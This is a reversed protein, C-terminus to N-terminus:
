RAGGGGIEEWRDNLRANSAYRQDDQRGIAWGLQAIDARRLRDILQPQVARVRLPRDFDGYRFGRRIEEAIRARQGAAGGRGRQGFWGPRHMQVEREALREHWQRRVILGSVPDLPGTGGRVHRGTRRRTHQIVRRQIRQRIFQRPGPAADDDASRLEVRCQGLRDRAQRAREAHRQQGIREREDAATRMRTRRDDVAVVGKQTIVADALLQAGVDHKTEPRHRGGLRHQEIQLTERLRPM